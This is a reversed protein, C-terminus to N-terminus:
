TSVGGMQRRSREMMLEVKLREVEQELDAVKRELTASRNAMAIGDRELDFARKQWRVVEQNLAKMETRLNKVEEYLERRVETESAAEVAEVAAQRELEKARKTANTSTRIELYKGLGAICAVVVGVLVGLTQIFQETSV